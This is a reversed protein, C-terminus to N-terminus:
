SNLPVAKGSSAPASLSPLPCQSLVIRFTTGKGIESHRVFIKGKHYNVVIRRALTLGLGWGRKKTSFGPEFVRQYLKKPIGKGTDQIDIFIKGEKEGSLMLTLQGHGAMADVANKCINEIVWEFLYRNVLAHVPFSFQNLFRIQVKTSIRKRLYDLTNELIDAVNEEKLTPLSGIHSFRSTIRDLRAIDKELESIIQPDLSPESKFYEIWAILSSLPTGLQHATEKALGIWVRNQEAKKSYSFALYAMLGFTFIITLQVYPFYRLQGLLYSNRYYIYQFIRDHEDRVEIPPHERKMMELEAELLAKKELETAKPPIAVNKSDDVQGYISVTIMPITTNSALMESLFANLDDNDQSNYLFQLERAYLRVQEEERKVLQILITNAYYVSAAVILLGTLLVAIRAKFKDAYLDTM